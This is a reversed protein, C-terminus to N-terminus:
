FPVAIEDIVYRPGEKIWSIWVLGDEGKPPMHLSPAFRAPGIALWPGNQNAGMAYDRVSDLKDDGFLVGIFDGDRSMGKSLQRYTFKSREAKAQGTTTLYFPRQRSFCALLMEVSKARMAALFTDMARRPTTTDAVTAGAHDHTANEQVPSPGVAPVDAGRTAEIDSSPEASGKTTSAAGPQRM